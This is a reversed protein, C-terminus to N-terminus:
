HGGGSTLQEIMCVNPPASACNNRTPLEGATSDVLAIAAAVQLPSWSHGSIPSRQPGQPPGYLM